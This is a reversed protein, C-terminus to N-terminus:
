FGSSFTKLNIAMKDTALKRVITPVLRGWKASSEKVCSFILFRTLTAVPAKVLTSMSMTPSHIKLCFFEIKDFTRKTVKGMALMMALRKSIDAGNPTKFAM